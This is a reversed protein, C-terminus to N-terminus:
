YVKGCFCINPYAASLEKWNLPLKKSSEVEARALLFDLSYVRKESSSTRRELDEKKKKEKAIKSKLHEEDDDGDEEEEELEDHKPLSPTTRVSGTLLKQSIKNNAEKGVSGNVDNKSSKFLEVEKFDDDDDDDEDQEDHIPLPAL